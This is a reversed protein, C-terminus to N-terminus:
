NAINMRREHECDREWTSKPVSPTHVYPPKVGGGLVAGPVDLVGGAADEAVGKGEMDDADMVDEILGTGDEEPPEKVGEEVEAVGVGVDEVLPTGAAASDLPM